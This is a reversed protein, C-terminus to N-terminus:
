CSMEPIFDKIGQDTIEYLYLVQDNIQSDLQNIYRNVATTRQETHLEWLRIAKTSIDAAIERQTGTTITPLPISHIFTRDIGKYGGSKSQGKIEILTSVVSSNLIGLLM